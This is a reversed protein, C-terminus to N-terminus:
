GSLVRGAPASGRLGRPLPARPRVASGPAPPADPEGLARPAPRADPGAPSPPRTGASTKAREPEADAGPLADDPGAATGAASGRRLIARQIPTDAAIVGVVLAVAAVADLWWHNATVVVVTTMIAPHALSLYRQWTTGARIIAWAGVLAWAVHLSPMAAIQNATATITDSDYIKPGYVQLTDVFGMRPFWRPPALPFAVHLALAAFTVGVMVRRVRGYHDYHRVYLWALFVVTGIFHAFFYYRNFFWVLADHAIIADQFRVENFIGLAREWDIVTRSNTLAQDIEDKVVLRVIRYLLFGSAVVALERGLRWGYRSGRGAVASRYQLETTSVQSM